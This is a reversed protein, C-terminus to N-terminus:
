TVRASRLLDPTEDAHETPSFNYGLAFTDGFPRLVLLRFLDDPVSAAGRSVSQPWLTVQTSSVLLGSLVQIRNGVLVPTDNSRSLTAYMM